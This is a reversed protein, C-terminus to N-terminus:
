SPAKKYVKTKYRNEQFDVMKEIEEVSYDNEFNSVAVFKCEVDDERFVVGIILVEKTKNPSEDDLIYVDAGEGDLASFGLVYGYNFPYKFGKHKTGKPRDIKVIVRTGIFDFFDKKELVINEFISSSKLIM